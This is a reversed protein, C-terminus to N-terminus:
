GVPRLIAREDGVKLALRGGPHPRVSARIVRPCRRRAGRTRTGRLVLVGGKARARLTLRYTCGGARLTGHVTGAGVTLRVGRATFTRTSTAWPELPENPDWGPAYRPPAAPCTGDGAAPGGRRLAVIGASTAVVLLDGAPVPRDVWRTGTGPVLTAAWRQVGTRADIARLCGGQESGALVHDGLLLPSGPVDAAGTWLAAPAGGRLGYARIGGDEATYVRDRGLAPPDGTFAVGLRTADAGRYLALSETGDTDVHTAAVRGRADVGTWSVGHETGCRGDGTRRRVAGSGLDLAYMGCLSGVYATTGAVARRGVPAMEPLPTRWRVAGTAADLALVDVRQTVLVLGGAVVPQASARVGTDHRWRERGTAPDLGVVSGPGDVVVLLDASAGVNASEAVERTWRTRGGRDASVLLQPGQVGNVTSRNVSVWHLHDRTAVVQAVGDNGAPAAQWAVVYPPAPGTAVANAGAPDIGALRTDVAHAAGPAALLAAVVAARLPGTFRM